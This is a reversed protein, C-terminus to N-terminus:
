ARGGGLLSAVKKKPRINPSPGTARSVPATDSSKDDTKKEWAAATDGGSPEYPRDFFPDAAPGRRYAPTPLRPETREGARESAREGVRETTREGVTM